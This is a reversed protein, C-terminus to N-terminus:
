RADVSNRICLPPKSFVLSTYSDRSGGRTSLLKEPADMVRGGQRRKDFDPHMKNLANSFTDREFVLLPM